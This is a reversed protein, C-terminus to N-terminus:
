HRAKQRIKRLLRFIEESFNPIIMFEVLNANKNRYKSYHDLIYKSPELTTCSYLSLSLSFSLSSVFELCLLNNYKM